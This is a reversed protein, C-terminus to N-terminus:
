LSTWNVEVNGLIIGAAITGVGAIMFPIAVQITIHWWKEKQIEKIPLTEPTEESDESNINDELFSVHAM